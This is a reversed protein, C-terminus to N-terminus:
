ASDSAGVHHWSNKLTAQIESDDLVRAKLEELGPVTALMDYGDHLINYVLSPMSAIVESTPPMSFYPPRGYSELSAKLYLAEHHRPNNVSCWEAPSVSVVGACVYPRVEYISCADAKLFPCPINAKAYIGCEDDFRQRDEITAKGATILQFLDNIIRFCRTIRTIRDKWTDFSKLFHALIDDRSYLYHVIVECEQLSASVFLRCCQSCGKACSAVKENIALNEALKEELAAIGARKQIAYAECFRERQRGVQGKYAILRNTDIHDPKVSSVVACCKKYKRGSGCPCPSNREPTL